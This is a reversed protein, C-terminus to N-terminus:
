DEDFSSRKDTNPAGHLATPRAPADAPELHSIVHELVGWSIADRVRLVSVASEMAHVFVVGDDVEIDM